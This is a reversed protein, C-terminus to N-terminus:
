NPSESLLCRHGAAIGAYVCDEVTQQSAGQHVELLGGNLFSLNCGM